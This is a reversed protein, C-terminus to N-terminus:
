KNSAAARISVSVRPSNELRNAVEIVKQTFIEKTTTRSGDAFVSVCLEDPRYIGDPYIPMYVVRKKFFDENLWLFYAYM